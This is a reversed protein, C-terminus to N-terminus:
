HCDNIMLCVGLTGTADLTDLHFQMVLNFEAATVNVKTQASDNPFFIDESNMQLKMGPTAIICLVIPM